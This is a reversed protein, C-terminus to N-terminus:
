GRIKMPSPVFGPAEVQAQMAQQSRQRAPRQAVMRTAVVMLERNTESGAGPTRPVGSAFPSLPMGSPKPSLATDGSVLNVAHTPCGCHACQWLEWGATTQSGRQSGGPTGDRHSYRDQGSLQAAVPQAPSLAGVHLASEECRAWSVRGGVCGAPEGSAFALWASEADNVVEDAVPVEGKKFNGARPAAALPKSLHARWAGCPCTFQVAQEFERAEADNRGGWRLLQRVHDQGLPLALARLQTYLLAEWLGYANAVMAYAVCLSMAAAEMGDAFAILVQPGSVASGLGGGSNGGDLRGRVAAILRLTKPIAAELSASTGARSEAGDGSAPRVPLRLCSSGANGCAQACANLHAHLAGGFPVKAPSVLVVAAVGAHALTRPDHLWTAPALLLGAAIRLAGGGPVRAGGVPNILPDLDRPMLQRHMTASPQLAQTEDPADYAPRLPLPAYEPLGAARGRLMDDVHRLIDAVTPRTAPNRDLISEILHLIATVNRLPAEREPAILPQGAQTVRIFFRIWDPDFLLYEGTFVEYLLCGLSWVDSEPGAGVLQGAAARGGQRDAHAVMLMEPSKICETGRNRRTRPQQTEMYMRSEGFDTLAVRFPPEATTPCWFEEESVGPLPELLVNDCKLDFHVVGRAQLQAVASAVQRFVALYLRAHSECARRELPQRRRWQRLSCKYDELVIHIHHDDVGYDLLKCVGPEGRLAELIFVENFADVAVCHDHVAQPLDISKVAVSPPCGLPPLQARHVQAYAGRGIRRKQGYLPSRFLRATSLRLLRLAGSGVPPPLAHCSAALRPILHQNAPHSLHAHLVFPVNPLHQELPFPHCYMKSLQGMSDVALVLALRLVLVHLNEDRYVLRRARESEYHGESDGEAGGVMEAATGSGGGGNGAQAGGRRAGSGKSGHPTDQARSVLRSEIATLFGGRLRGGTGNPPTGGPAAAYTTASTAAGTSGAIHPSPKTSGEPGANSSRQASPPTVAGGVAGGLPLGPVQPRSGRASPGPPPRSGTNQRMMSRSSQGGAGTASRLPSTREAAAGGKSVGKLNLSLGPPTGGGAANISLGPMTATRPPPLPLGDDSDSESPPPSPEESSSSSSQSSAGDGDMAELMAVDEDLDGTFQMPLRSQPTVSGTPTVHVDGATIASGGPGNASATQASPQRVPSPSARSNQSRVSPGLKLQPVMKGPASAPGASIPTTHASRKDGQSAGGVADLQLRPVIGSGGPAPSPERTAITGTVRSSASQSATDRAPEHALAFEHELSIERILFHMIRLQFFRRAAAAGGTAALSLLSRLHVRCLALAAELRTPNYYLQVFHLFHLQIWHDTAASRAPYPSGPSGFLEALLELAMEHAAMDTEPPAEMYRALMRCLYGHPPDVLFALYGLVEGRNVVPGHQELAGVAEPEEAALGEWARMHEEVDARSLSGNRSSGLSRAVDRDAGKKSAKGQKKGGSAAGAAGGERGEDGAFPLRSVLRTLAAWLMLVARRLSVIRIRPLRAELAPGLLALRTYDKLWLRNGSSELLLAVLARGLADGPTAGALAAMVRVWADMVEVEALSMTAFQGQARLASKVALLQAGCAAVVRQPALQSPAAVIYEALVSLHLQVKPALTEWQGPACTTAENLVAVVSDLLVDRQLNLTDASEAVGGGPPPTGPGHGGAAGPGGGPAQCLHLMRLALHRLRGSMAPVEAGDVSLTKTLEKQLFPAPSKVLLPSADQRQRWAQLLSNLCELLHCKMEFALSDPTVVGNAVEPEEGICSLGRLSGAADPDTFSRAGLSIPSLLMGADAGSSPDVLARTTWSRSVASFNKRADDIASARPRRLAVISALDAALLSQGVATSLQEMGEAAGVPGRATEAARSTLNGSAMRGLFGLGGRSAQKSLQRRAQRTPPPAIRPATGQGPTSEPLVIGSGGRSAKSLPTSAADGLALNLKPVNVSSGTRQHRGGRPGGQDDDDSDTARKKGTTAAASADLISSFEIESESSDYGRTGVPRSSEPSAPGSVVGAFREAIALYCGAIADATGTMASHEAVTPLKLCDALVGCLPATSVDGARLAGEAADALRHCADSDPPLGALLAAVAHRLKGEAAGLRERTMGAPWTDPAAYWRGIQEALSVAAEIVGREAWERTFFSGSSGSLQPTNCVRLVMASLDDLAALREPGSRGPKLREVVSAVTRQDARADAAKVPSLVRRMGALAKSPSAVASPKAELGPPSRIPLPSADASALGADRSPTAADGASNASPQSRIISAVADFYSSVHGQLHGRREVVGDSETLDSPDCIDLTGAALNIFLARRDIKGRAKDKHAVTLGAKGLMVVFEQQELLQWVQCAAEPEGALHSDAEADRLLFEVRPLLRQGVRCAIAVLKSPAILLWIIPANGGPRPSAKHGVTRASGGPLVLHQVMGRVVVSLRIPATGQRCDSADVWMMAGGRGEQQLTAEAAGKDTVRIECEMPMASPAGCLGMCGGEKGFVARPLASRGQATM